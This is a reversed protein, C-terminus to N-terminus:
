LATLGGDVVIAQGTIYSAEGSLLFVTAYAVEWATGQRGLPVRAALKDRVRSQASAGRGMPTDMLGPVVVNARLARAAGERGVHRCLGFLGAKSADYSPSGSGPRLGAASGIFVVASGDLMHPLAARCVLFHARLNVAMVRDWEEPSTGELGAGLGIGVNLVVGDLGGLSERAEAVMAACQEADAVDAIVSSAQGGAAEVENVTAASAEPDVDACAVSAGERASLVAIARGNGTPADPEPSPRTGAGVVLVRRGALRGRGPAEGAAELTTM